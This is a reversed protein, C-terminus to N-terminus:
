EESVALILTRLSKNTGTLEDVSVTLYALTFCGIGTELDMFTGSKGKRTNMSVHSRRHAKAQQIKVGVADM